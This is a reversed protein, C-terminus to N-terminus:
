FYKSYLCLNNFKSKIFNQSPIKKSSYNKEFSILMELLREIRTKSYRYDEYNMTESNNSTPKSDTCKTRDIKFSVISEFNVQIFQM